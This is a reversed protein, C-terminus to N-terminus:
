DQYAARAEQHIASPPYHISRVLAVNKDGSLVHPQNDIGLAREEDAAGHEIIAFVQLLAAEYDSIGIGYSM